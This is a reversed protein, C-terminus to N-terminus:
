TQRKSINAEPLTPFKWSNHASPPTGKLGTGGGGVEQGNDSALGKVVIAHLTVLCSHKKVWTFVKKGMGGAKGMGGTVVGDGGVITTGGHFFFFRIFYYYYYFCGVLLERAQFACHADLFANAHQAVVRDRSAQTVEGEGREVRATLALALPTLTQVALSPLPCLALPLTVVIVVVVAVDYRRYIPAAAAASSSASVSVAAPHVHLKGRQIYTENTTQPRQPRQPRNKKKRTICVCIIRM